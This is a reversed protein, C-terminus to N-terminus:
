SGVIRPQRIRRRGCPREFREVIDAREAYQAHLVKIAVDGGQRDAFEATRHRARYVRGMGGQGIDGTIQYSGITSPRGSSAGSLLGRKQQDLEERTIIGDHFLKALKELQDATSM